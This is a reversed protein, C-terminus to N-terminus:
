KKQILLEPYIESKIENKTKSLLAEFLERQKTQKLRDAVEKEIDKFEPEFADKKDTVKVIHWGFQTQFPKSFEGKKTAFAADEFPKVMRGKEFWGLQGGNAGSPDISNEKALKAFSEGAVLQKYIKNITEEDKVLIHSGEVQDNKKFLDKNQNFYKKADGGSVQSKEEIEAKLLAAVILQKEVEKLQKKVEANNQYGKKKAFEFLLYDKQLETLLTKKGEPSGYYEKYQPPLSDVKEEFEKVTVKSDGVKLITKADNSLNLKFGFALVGVLVVLLIVYKKM